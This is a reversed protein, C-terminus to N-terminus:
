HQENVAENVERQLWRMVVEKGPECADTVRLINQVRQGVAIVCEEARGFGSLWSSRYTAELIGLMGSVARDAAFPFVYARLLVPLTILVPLDVTLIDLESELEHFSISDARHTHVFEFLAVLASLSEFADSVAERALDNSPRPFLNFLDYLARADSAVSPGRQGSVPSPPRSPPLKLTFRIPPPTTPPTSSSGRRKADKVPKSTPPGLPPSGPPTASGPPAPRNSLAVLARWVLSITLSALYGEATSSTIYRGLARAYVPMVSQLYTISPHVGAAKTIGPVRIPPLPLQELEEIHPMLDSKIGAVLPEIVRKITTVLSDRVGKLGDGRMDGDQGLGLQDFTDLLEGAFTALALAHLQTPNPSSSQPSPVSTSAPSAILPLLTGSLNTVLVSLPRHLTRLVARYLHPNERTSKIESAILDGLARGRGAPIPRRGSLLESPVGPGSPQALAKSIAESLRLSLIEMYSGDHVLTSPPQTLPSATRKFNSFSLKSMPRARDNVAVPEPRPASGPAPSTPRSTPRLFAPAKLTYM